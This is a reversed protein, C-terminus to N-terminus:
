TWAIINIYILGAIMILKYSTSINHIKKDTDAKRIYFIIIIKPILITLILWSNEIHSYFQFYKLLWVFSLVVGTFTIFSVLMLAKPIGAVIPYTISGAKLDGNYDEVDKILERALSLVFIILSYFIILPIVQGQIASSQWSIQKIVNLEVYLMILLVFVSFLSVIINGVLPLNKFHSSYLYLVTSSILYIISLKIDGIFFAIYLSLLWGTIFVIFYSSLLTSSGLNSKSKNNYADSRLDFYDNIFYGGSAILITVFIFPILLRPFLVLQYEDKYSVFLVTYFIFQTLGVILLNLPRSAKLISLLM